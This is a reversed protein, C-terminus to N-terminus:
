PRSTISVNPQCFYGHPCSDPTCKCQGTDPLCGAKCTPSCTMACNVDWRGIPCGTSWMCVRVCHRNVAHVSQCLAQQGCACESVIGTSWMCVRACHRNVVYVSQCLAQQGCACESVIGTSWMCVRVCHRNVVHVSECLAQQGCACDLM